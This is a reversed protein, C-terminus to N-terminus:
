AAVRARRPLWVQSPARDFFQALAFQVRPTPIIGASEIRRITRGSVYGLGETYLAKSLTEPSLGRDVRMQRLLEAAPHNRSVGISAMDLFTGIAAADTLEIGCIEM